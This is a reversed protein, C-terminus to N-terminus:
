RRKSKSPMRSRPLQLTCRGEKVTRLHDAHRRVRVGRPDCGREVREPGAFRVLARM